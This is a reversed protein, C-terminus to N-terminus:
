SEMKVLPLSVIVKTSEGYKSNIKIKGGYVEAIKMSIILGLGMGQQEYKDREFQLYARITALQEDTMGKGKDTIIIQYYEDKKNGSLTVKTDKNSFKFANDLLEEILISFYTIPISIVSKEVNIDLDDKRNFRKAVKHSTDDVLDQTIESVGKLLAKSQSDTSMLELKEYFIFNKILRNLRAGAQQIAESFELAEDDNSEKFKESLMEAYGMITVLPTQLEHPLALAISDRLNEMRKTVTLHKELRTKVSKLLDEPQFPKTIYDDAGLIMGKRLDSKDTLASLFIFPITSTQPNTRLNRLVEYGNIGDMNIDCVVLDPTEHNAIQIGDEGNSAQMCEYGEQQLYEAISELILQEDEIILIKEL